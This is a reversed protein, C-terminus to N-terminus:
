RQQIVYGSAMDKKQFLKSARRFPTSALTQVTEGLTHLDKMKARLLSGNGTQDFLMTGWSAPRLLPHRMHFFGHTLMKVPSDLELPKLSEVIFNLGAGASASLSAWFRPNSELLYVDGTCEEIRADLNMVGNYGGCEALRHAIQEMQENRFFRMTGEERQQFALAHIRGNVAYLDICVDRGQIYRQAILADFQYAANNVITSLYQAETHIVYVGESGAKNIPKLIFPTGLEKAVDQFRLNSKSGIYITDPVNLNHEKCFLYFKWKDDFMNLTDTDPIPIIKIRLQNRVRNIMRVSDCDIPLLIADPNNRTLETIAEVLAADDQKEYSIEIHQNCLLSRRLQRTSAGGLVICRRKGASRLTLLAQLMLTHCGGMLIVTNM